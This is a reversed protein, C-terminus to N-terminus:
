EGRLHHAAFRPLHNSAAARRECSAAFSGEGPGIGQCSSHNGFGRGVRLVGTRHVAGGGGCGGRCNQVCTELRPTPTKELYHVAQPSELVKGFKDIKRSDTLIPEISKEKNGFLWLAFKVLHDLKSKPIPKKVKDPDATINVGLYTQVGDSRLSLTLVSFNRRLRLFTSRM